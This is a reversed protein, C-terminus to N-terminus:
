ANWAERLSKRFVKIGAKELRDILQMTKALSPEPLKCGYNDYGCAVAWPEIEIIKRSFDDLDFDMIPEVSIFARLGHSYSAAQIGELREAPPPALSLKYDRNSEITAGFYCDGHFFLDRQCLTMEVEHYRWPNKTLFLFKTHNFKNTIKIIEAILETPVWAGFLDLMDCVFVFDFDFEEDKFKPHMESQVLRPIGTYKVMKRQKSFNQAWCGENYCNHKCEGGLPNWTRTIFSFMKSAM